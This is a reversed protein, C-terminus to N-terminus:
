NEPVAGDVSSSSHGALAAAGADGSSMVEVALRRRAQSRSTGKQEAYEDISEQSVAVGPAIQVFPPSSGCGAGALILGAAASRKLWSTPM